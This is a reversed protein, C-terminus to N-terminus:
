RLINKYATEIQNYLDKYFQDYAAKNYAKDRNEEIFKESKEFIANELPRLQQMYGTGQSNHLKVFNMYQKGNGRQVSFIDAKLDLALECMRANPSDATPTMWSPQNEGAKIFMPVAVSVPPYGLVTWMMANAPNEGKKVGQLVIASTSSIRPIFDQAIFWGSGRETIEPDKVLDFDMLSHHFSRSLNQVIWQPTFEGAMGIHKKVLYDATTYRIYGHGDNLKGTYSHNAYVLCGQPAIKPDNVDIKTWGEIGTEYYAAGGQADIVAFNSENKTGQYEETLMREFDELTACISLARYMVNEGDPFKNTSKVDYNLNYSATNMICFGADNTGGWASKSKRGSNMLAIFNYKAGKIYEVCVENVDNDRHKWMLPRGDPTVKGTFIAATCAILDSTFLLTVAAVLILIRKM